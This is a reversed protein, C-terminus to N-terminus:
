WGQGQLQTALGRAVYGLGFVFLQGPGTMRIPREEKHHGNRIESYSERQSVLDSTQAVNILAVVQKSRRRHEKSYNKVYNKTALGETEVFDTGLSAPLSYSRRTVAHWFRHSVRGTIFISHLRDSRTFDKLKIKIFKRSSM